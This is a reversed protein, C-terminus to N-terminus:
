ACVISRVEFKEAAPDDMDRSHIPGSRSNLSRGQRGNLVSQIEAIVALAVQEPGDAGIDLGMPAHM